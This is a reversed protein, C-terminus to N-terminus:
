VLTEGIEVTEIPCRVGLLYMLLLKFLCCILCVGSIHLCPLVSACLVCRAKLCGCVLARDSHVCVFWIRVGGDVCILIFLVKGVDLPPFPLMRILSKVISRLLCSLNGVNPLNSM